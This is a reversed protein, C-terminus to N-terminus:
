SSSFIKNLQYLLTVLCFNHNSPNLKTVHQIETHKYDKSVKEKEESTM